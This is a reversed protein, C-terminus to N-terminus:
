GRVFLKLIKKFRWALYVMGTWDMTVSANYARAFDLDESKDNSLMGDVQKVGHVL